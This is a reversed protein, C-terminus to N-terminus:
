WWDRVEEEACVFCWVVRTCPRPRLGVTVVEEKPQRRGRRRERM